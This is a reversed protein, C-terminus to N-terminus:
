VNWREEEDQEEKKKGNEGSEIQRSFRKEENKKM